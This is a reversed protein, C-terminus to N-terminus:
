ELNIRQQYGRSGWAVRTESREGSEASSLSSRSSHPTLGRIESRAGSAPQVRKCSRSQWEVLTRAPERKGKKLWRLFMLGDADEYAARGVCALHRVKGGPRKCAGECGCFLKLTRM